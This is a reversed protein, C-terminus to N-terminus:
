KRSRNLEEYYVDLDADSVSEIGYEDFVWTLLTDMKANLGKVRECYRFSWQVYGLKVAPSWSKPTESQINSIKDAAKILLADVSIHQVHELESRKREVKSLAKDHSCELVLQCVKEGFHQILEEPTTHTDEITDHLLAACIIDEDKIGCLQLIWAVERPHVIYPNKSADKRIQGEHKFAAFDDARKIKETTINLPM